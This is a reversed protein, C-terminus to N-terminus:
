NEEHPCGETEPDCSCNIPNGDADYTTNYHITAKTAGWPAGVVEGESWPCYIDLLWQCNQFATSQITPYKDTPPQFVIAEIGTYAFSQTGISVLESNFTIVNDIQICSSFCYNGFTTINGFNIVEKLSYCQQAFYSPLSTREDPLPISELKSCSSFSLSGTAPINEIEKLSDSYSLTLNSLDKPLRARECNPLFGMYVSKFGDSVYLQRVRGCVKIFEKPRSNVNVTNGWGAATAYVGAGSGSPNIKWKMTGKETLEWYPMTYGNYGYGSAIIPSDDDWDPLDDGGEVAKGDLTARIQEILSAQTEVDANAQSLKESMENLSIKDSTDALTKVEAAIADLSSGKIVYNDRNAM